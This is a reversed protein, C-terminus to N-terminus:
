RSLHGVLDIEAVVGDPVRSGPRTVALCPVEAALMLSPVALQSITRAVVAPAIYVVFLEDFGDRTRVDAHVYLFWTLAGLLLVSGRTSGRRYALVSWVLLPLAVAISFRRWVARM